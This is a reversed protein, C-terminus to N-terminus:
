DQKSSNEVHRYWPVLQLELKFGLHYFLEAIVPVSLTKRKRTVYYSIYNQSRQMKDALEQQTMGSAKFTTELLELAERLVVEAAVDGKYVLRTHKLLNRRNRSYNGTGPILAM